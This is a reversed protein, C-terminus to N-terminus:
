PPPAATLAFVVGHALAGGLTAAVVSRRATWIALVATIGALLPWPATPVPYLAPLLSATFLTAIAAPGTAALFRALPGTRPLGALNLRTPLYRFGWNAAGALGAMLLLDGNM